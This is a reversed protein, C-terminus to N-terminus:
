VFFLDLVDQLGLDNQIGHYLTGHSTIRSGLHVVMMGCGQHWQLAFHGNDVM